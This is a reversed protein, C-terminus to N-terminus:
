KGPHSTAWWSAWDRDPHHDRPQQSIHLYVDGRGDLLESDMLWTPLHDHAWHSAQGAWGLAADARSRPAAGAEAAAHQKMREHSGARLPLAHGRRDAAPAQPPALARLVDQQQARWEPTGHQDSVQLLARAALPGAAPGM